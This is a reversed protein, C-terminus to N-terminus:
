RMARQNRLQLRGRVHGEADLVEISQGQVAPDPIGVLLSPLEMVTPTSFVTDQERVRLMGGTERPYLYFDGKANKWLRVSAFAAAVEGDDADLSLDQEALYTGFEQQLTQQEAWTKLGFVDATQMAKQLSNGATAVAGGALMLSVAALKASRTVPTLAAQINGRMEEILDGWTAPTPVPAPVPAPTREADLADLQRLVSRFVHAVATNVDFPVVEPVTLGRMRAEQEYLGRSQPMQPYMLEDLIQQDTLCDMVRVLHGDEDQIYSSHDTEMSSRTTM